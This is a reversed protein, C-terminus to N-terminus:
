PSSTAPSSVATGPASVPATGPSAAPAPPAQPSQASQRARLAIETLWFHNAGNRVPTANIGHGTQLTDLLCVGKPSVAQHQINAHLAAMECVHSWDSSDWGSRREPQLDPHPVSTWAHLTRNNRALVPAAFGAVLTSDLGGSLTCGVPGENPLRCRVANSFIETLEATYDRPDRYNRRITIDPNWWRSAATERDAHLWKCYGGPLLKIEAFATDEKSRGMRGLTLLALGEANLAVSVDPLSLLLPLRTAVAFGYKTRAYYLSRQGVHDVAVFLSKGTWHAFAFDGPLLSPAADGANLAALAILHPDSTPSNVHLRRCVEDPADLRGHALVFSEGSEPQMSNRATLLVANVQIAAIEGKSSIWCHNHHSVGAEKYARQLSDVTIGGRSHYLFAFM